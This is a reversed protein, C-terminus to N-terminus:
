VFEKKPAFKRFESMKNNLLEKFKKDFHDWDEKPDTIIDFWLDNSSSYNVIKGHQAIQLGFDAIRLSHFLSKKAVYVNRDTEVEFKKKAKVWSHSSKESISSRLKEKNLLFPFQLKNKLLLEQPLFFCELAVIKHQQLQDIFGNPSYLHINLKHNPSSLSYERVDKNVIVVFDYDSEESNTKYIQSGFPYVNLVEKDLLHFNILILDYINFNIINHKM